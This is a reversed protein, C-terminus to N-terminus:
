NQASCCVPSCGGTLVSSTTPLQLTTKMQSLQGATTLALKDARSSMQKDKKHELRKETHKTVTARLLMVYESGLYWVREKYGKGEVVCIPLM